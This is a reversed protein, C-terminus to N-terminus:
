ASYRLSQCLTNMILKSIREPLKKKLSNQIQFKKKKKTLWHENNGRFTNGTTLKNWCERLRLTISLFTQSYDRRQMNQYSLYLDHVVLFVYNKIHGLKKMPLFWLLCAHMALSNTFRRILFRDNFQHSKFTSKSHSLMVHFWESAAGFECWSIGTQHFVANFM